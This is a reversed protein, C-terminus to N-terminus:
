RDRKSDSTSQWQHSSRITSYTMVVTTILVIAVLLAAIISFQGRKNM